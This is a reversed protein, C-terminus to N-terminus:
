ESTLPRQATPSQRVIAFLGAGRLRRTADSPATM